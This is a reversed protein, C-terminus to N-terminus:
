TMCFGSECTDDVDLVLQQDDGVVDDLPRASRHLYVEDKGLERRRENMLRELHVARDFLDPTERRLRRWAELTHFPCFFCASKPPVPLGAREILNMCDQRTVLRDILPYELVQNGEPKRSNLRHIEDLSIGIGTHAPDAETAGHERLWRAIVRIKFDTTCSRTGPAGDGGMRVPIGISRSGPRTLRGYLTEVEGARDGKQRRRALEVVDVGREAAWPVAVDRVYRITDPHESDDGTNAFLFTPYDIERQAALVLCATSQVGGGYSFVRLTV